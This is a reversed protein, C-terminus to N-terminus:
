GGGGAGATFLQAIIALAQGIGQNQSVNEQNRIGMQALLGRLMDQSMGGLQGTMQAGFNQQNQSLGLGAGLYQNLLQNALNGTQGAAGLGTQYPQYAMQNALSLGQLGLQGSTSYQQLAQNLLNTSLGGAQSIYPFAQGSVTGFAGLANGIGQQGMGGAQGLLNGYQGMGQTILQNSFDRENRRQLEQFLGSQQSAVGGGQQNLRGALAEQQPALVQERMAQVYEPTLGGGALAQLLRNSTEGQMGTGFLNQGGILSEITGPGGLGEISRQGPLGGSMIQSLLDSVGYNGGGGLLRMAQQQASQQDATGQTGPIQGQMLGPITQGGLQDLYPWLYNFGATRLNEAEAGQQGLMQNLYDAAGSPFGGYIQQSMFDSGAFGQTLAQRAAPALTRTLFDYLGATAGFNFGGSEDLFMNPQNQQNWGFVNQWYDTDYTSSGQGGTPFQFQQNVNSSPTPNPNVLPPIGGTSTGGRTTAPTGVRGSGDQNFGGLAPLNRNSGAQPVTRASGTPPTYPTRGSGGGDGNSVQPASTAAMARQGGTYQADGIARYYDTANTAQPAVQGTAQAQPFWNQQLWDAMGATGGTWGASKFPQYGMSNPDAINQAWPATTSRELMGPRNAQQLYPMDAMWYQAYSEPTQQATRLRNIAALDEQGALQGPNYSGM